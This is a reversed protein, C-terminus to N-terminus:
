RGYACLRHFLCNVNYQLGQLDSYQNCGGRYDKEHEATRILINNFWENKFFRVDSISLYIYLNDPHKVFATFEYHNKGVNVLQWNNDKCMSKLYNIYKRQFTLYDQGTYPGSSFDYDLYQQLDNLNKM